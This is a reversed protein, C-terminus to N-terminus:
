DRRIEPPLARTLTADIVSESDRGVVVNRIWRKHDPSTIEVFHKGEELTVPEKMPAKTEHVVRTTDSPGAYIKVKAGEVEVNVLLTGYFTMAELGYTVAALEGSEIEVKETSAIHDTATVEITYEGAPLELEVVDEDMALLFGDIRITSEEIPTGTVTLRGWSDSRLEELAQKAQKLTAEDSGHRLYLTYFFAAQSTRGKARWVEALNFYALTYGLPALKLGKEYYPISRTIAGRRALDNAESIADYAEANQAFAPAHLMTVTLM